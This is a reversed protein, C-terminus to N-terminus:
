VHTVPPAEAEKETATQDAARIKESQIDGAEMKRVDRYHVRTNWPKVNNTFIEDVDELTKGATEPFCFFVHIFMAACFTGFVM